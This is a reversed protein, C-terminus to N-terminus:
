EQEFGFLSNHKVGQRPQAMWGEVTKQWAFYHSSQKHDAFAQEDQYVEYLFFRCPDDVAQLVDFRLAGPEGLTGKHNLETAAIFEQEHGEKVFVTVCVVYM